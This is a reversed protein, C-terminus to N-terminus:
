RFLFPTAVFVIAAHLVDLHTSAQEAEVDSGAVRPVRRKLRPEETEIRLEDDGRPRLPTVPVPFVLEIRRFRSHLLATGIGCNGKM